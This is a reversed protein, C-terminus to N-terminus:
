ELDIWEAAFSRGVKGEHYGRGLRSALFFSSVRNEACKYHLTRTLCSM